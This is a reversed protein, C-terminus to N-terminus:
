NIVVRQVGVGDASVVRLIFVGKNNISVTNSRGSFQQRQVVAGTFDIVEVVYSDADVTLTFTGKSPNPSVGLPLVKVDGISTGVGTDVSAVKGDVITVVAPTARVYVDQDEDDKLIAEFTILYEGDGAEFMWGQVEFSLDDGANTFYDFDASESDRVMWGNATAGDPLVVSLSYVGGDEAVAVEFDFVVMKVVNSSLTNDDAQAVVYFTGVEDFSVAASTGSVAQAFDNWPGLPSESYKWSIGTLDGVNALTLVESAQGLSLYQAEGNAIGFANLDRAGVYTKDTVPDYVNTLEHEEPLVFRNNAAYEAAGLIYDGAFIIQANDKLHMKGFAANPDTTLRFIPAPELYMRADDEMYIHGGRSPNSSNGFCLTNNDDNWRRFVAVGTGVIQIESHNYEFRLLDKDKEFVGSEIRLIGRLGYTNNRWQLTDEAGARIILMAKKEPEVVTEGDMVADRHEIVSGGYITDVGSTFVPWVPADVPVTINNRNPYAHPAWNFMNGFDEDIAGTWVLPLQAADGAQKVIEIEVSREVTGDVEADFVIFYTGNEEFEPVISNGTIAPDFSQYNEGSTTSWKWEGAGLVSGDKATVIIEGGTQEGRIYQMGVQSPILKESAVLYVLENSVIPGDPTTVECVLYFKGTEDFAPVLNDPTSTSQLVETYPGGSKTGYKWVFNTGADTTASSELAIESGEEGVLLRESRVTFRDAFYIWASGEPKAVIHTKNTPVDFYYHPYFGEGGNLQGTSVRHAMNNRHDSSLVIEGNDQITVANEPAANWRGIGDAHEINLFGDGRLIVSGGDVGDKPGILFYGDKGVSMRGSGEIILESAVKEFYISRNINLNGSNVTLKGEIYVSGTTTTKFAIGDPMSFTVEGRPHEVITVLPVGNEDQVPNEDEDLVPEEFYYPGAVFISNASIESDRSIVAFNPNEPDAYTGVHGFNLNNGDMGTAPEWNNANTADTSIGGKWNMNVPDQAQLTTASLLGATGLFLSWMSKSYFKRM